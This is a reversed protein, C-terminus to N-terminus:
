EMGLFFSVLVFVAVTGVALFLVYQRLRGTQIRRLWVGISYTWRAILNVSGDVISQDVWRDGWATFRCLLRASGDVLGDIVRRDCLASLRSLFFTPRVFLIHYIEDFWWKNLLFRFLGAFQRRADEPDLRRLWYFATALAFGLLATSLAICTAPVKIEPAHSAYEEPWVTGLLVGSSRTLTGEPRAQELLNVLNLDFPEWAVSVAFVALIVLPVYMVAPSEHAHEYRHEDRPKGLFTLYWMRFMYFATIAAGGAAAYFFITGWFSNHGMFSYAQELIADKSYFGSLGIGYTGGIVFPVGFGAIALCGVLMTYGTWPMKKLLGGMQPMENTHVAHIVSGSCLFLLSKFFAHTFLHLMGALWGGIGLALMMYGLQSVTSYALVRKIDTAVIAITAAVFLTICGTVAIVLLVEPCFIPYFRGVLFVGAAVMTASHVLASVPTPGEMADPLWVHLPFQASKGVCGCFIGIGAVIWLWYGYRTGDGPTKGDRWAPLQAAIAAQVDEETSDEKASRVLEGIRDAAALRVMGDPTPVAQQANESIRTFLGIEVAGETDARVGDGDVDVDGFSLTGISAWIAMLGIIMGFDGIRNVIFAKNGANTASRREVYFGILFYSCIGVLEWFVFTMAVNGSVVLGLMSFSFLSMYQFFRHYRGPRVLPSGDRTTVEADTVDHLEEHMYGMSYFHICSAILTVMCFMCVTLTDIYYGITLRLRGFRGLEYWDGAIPSIAKHGGADEEPAGAEKEEVADHHEASPDDHHEGAPDDHHETHHEAHHVVDQPYHERVWLVLGVLSLVLAAVIAGTAVHGAYKGAKGMWPGLTLILAFSVLPLLVASGLLVPLLREVFDM